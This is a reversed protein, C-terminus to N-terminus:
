SGLLMKVLNPMGAGQHMRDRKLDTCANLLIDKVRDPYGIFEKRASLFCAVVGSVHPAAMSTGSMAVYLNERTKKRPNAGARCSLIREGPAVLDPKGRGDATPGRSSFYSVGYLHPKSKHISGVAISEDLNAPDGISLDTNIGVTQDGQQLELYGENGAALVVVVGQRWLKRLQKCIPTDGCGFAEPDFPGGLSLNVGHVVLSASNRNLEYIHDLAKIIKADSGRGDDDLVKYTFLQVQPAIGIIGLDKLGGAIIGAVHTGHGNGDVGARSRSKPNWETVAGAKLCDFVRGINSCDTGYGFHPHLPDIGTDLVAWTIGQGLSNYGRHATACQLVNISQDLLARKRANRFVRYVSDLHLDASMREVETRTLKAAVYGSLAELDVDDPTLPPRASRLSRTIWSVVESRVEDAPRSHSGDWQDRLEILVAHREEQPKAEMDAVLDRAITFPAIRQFLDRKIAARVPTRVESLRLYGTGSHPDRPSDVNWQVFDEISVGNVPAYDSRLRKDACVPDLPDAVNIWRKVIAPVKLGKPQRTISKLQDQVETLGLPSGITVLLDVEIGADAGLSSLADYAVMSGQSHAIVVFPGGGTRLRSLVSERMADRREKVFLFEHVDKLFTRTIRRTIFTRLSAPLPLVRAHYDAAAMNDPDVENGVTRRAIASLVERERRTTAASPLLPEVGESPDALARVSVANADAQAPDQVSDAMNCTAKTPEPYLIRNVWYALRSREGLNFGFLANDWQCKLIEAAPKNGIGHVYLITRAEGANADAALIQKGSAPETAVSATRTSRRTSAAKKRPAKRKSAM